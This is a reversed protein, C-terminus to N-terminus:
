ETAKKIWDPEWFDPHSPDTFIALDYGEYWTDSNPLVTNEDFRADEINKVGRLNALVLAAGQLKTYYLNANELNVQWLFAGSFNTYRLTTNKLNGNEFDVGSLNADSFDCGSCNANRLNAGQLKVNSVTAGELDGHVLYAKQLSAFQMQAGNLQAESLVVGELRAERLQANRLNAGSLNAQQLSGDRLWGNISLEEVAKLAVPNVQSSMDLILQAKRSTTDEQQKKPRIVLELAYFTIAAGFLETSLNNIFDDISQKERIVQIGAMGVAILILIVLILNTLQASSLKNFSWEEGSRWNERAEYTAKMM